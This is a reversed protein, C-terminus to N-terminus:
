QPTTIPSWVEVTGSPFLNVLVRTRFRWVAKDAKFGTTYWAGYNLRHPDSAPISGIFSSDWSAVGSSDVWYANVTTNFSNPAAPDKTAHGSFLVKNKGPFGSVNRWECFDLSNTAAGTQRCLLLGALVMWGVITRLGKMQDGKTERLERQALLRCNEREREREGEMLGLVNMHEGLSLHKSRGM